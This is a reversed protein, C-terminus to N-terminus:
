YSFHRKHETQFYFSVFVLSVFVPFLLMIIPVVPVTELLLVVFEGFFDFVYSIDSFLLTFISWFEATIFAEGYVFLAVVMGLASVSLGSLLVVTRLREQRSKMEVVTRAIDGELSRRYPPAQIGKFLTRLRSM